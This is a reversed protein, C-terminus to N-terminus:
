CMSNIIEKLEESPLSTGFSYEIGEYYIDSVFEGNNNFIYYETGNFELTEVSNSDKELVSKPHEGNKIINISIYDKNRTYMVYFEFSDIVPYEILNSDAAQFGEPVYRPIVLHHLENKSKLNILGEFEKPIEPPTDNQVQGIGRHEPAFSFYDDTWYAIVMQLVNTYGLVPICTVSILLVILAAVLLRTRLCNAKVPRKDKRIPVSVPPEGDFQYLSNKKGVDTNYFTQFEEWAKEADLPQYEPQAQEKKQIVEMVAMIFDADPASGNSVIFNQQLLAELEPISMNELRYPLSQDEKGTM